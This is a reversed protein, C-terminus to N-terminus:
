DHKEEYDKREKRTAPRTSIIRIRNRRTAFSVFLLQHKASHGIIIAREEADSHDPDDIIWAYPDAFVTDAQELGVGYKSLNSAAKAADWEFEIDPQRM